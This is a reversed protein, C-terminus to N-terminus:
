VKLSDDIVEEKNTFRNWTTKCSPCQWYSVGDYGRPDVIGILHKFCKPNEESWGYHGAIERIEEDTKNAYFKDGNQKRKLFHQYIDEGEWQEGCKPCQKEEYINM